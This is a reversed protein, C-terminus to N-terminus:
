PTLLEEVARFVADPTVADLCHAHPFPCGAYPGLGFCPACTRDTVVARGRPGYPRTRHVQSPGFVAVTPVGAAAALNMLGSDNSVVVKCCFALAWADALDGWGDLAHVPTAALHAVKKGSGPEAPGDLVVAKRGYKAHVREALRAFHHEPWRKEVFQGDCGTHLGLHLALPDFGHEALHQRAKDQLRAPPTLIPWLSAADAAAGLHAALQLNHELDHAGRLPTLATTLHRWAGGLEAFRHGVREPIGALRALRYANAGSPYSFVARDCRLARLHRVLRWRGAAGQFQAEGAAVVRDVFSAHALVPVARPSLTLLTVHDGTARLAKALPLALLANGIGQLSIVLTHRAM